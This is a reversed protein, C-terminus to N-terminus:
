AKPKTGSAREEKPPLTLNKTLLKATAKTSRPPLATPPVQPKTEKRERVYRPKKPKKAVGVAEAVPQVVHERVASAAQTVVGSVKKAVKTVATKAAALTSKAEVQQRSERRSKKGM